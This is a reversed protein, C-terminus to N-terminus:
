IQIIFMNTIMKEYINYQNLENNAEKRNQKESITSNLTSDIFSNENTKNDFLNLNLIITGM